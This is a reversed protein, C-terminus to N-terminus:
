RTFRNKLIQGGIERAKISLGASEMHGLDRFYENNGTMIRDLDVFLIDDDYKQFIERIIENAQDIHKVSAYFPKRPDTAHPMTTLVISIRRLLAVDIITCINRKFIRLESLDGFRETPLPRSVLTSTGLFAWYPEGSMKEKTYRYLASYRIAYRDPIKPDQFSKLAHSYDSRFSEGGDRVISDNWNDHIVVYDPSYEVVNLVFNVLSHASNYWGQGFNLCEFRRANKPKSENLFLEMIQPYGDATTSGGLTAIRIIGDPKSYTFNDGIFGIDNFPVAGRLQENGVLRVNPNGVFQIFPHGKFALYESYTRTSAKFLAIRTKPRFIVIFGRFALEISLLILISLFILAFETKIRRRGIIGFLSIFFLTLTACWLLVSEQTAFVDMSFLRLFVPPSLMLAICLGIIGIVGVVRHKMILIREVFHGFFSEVLPFSRQAIQDNEPHDNVDVHNGCRLQM